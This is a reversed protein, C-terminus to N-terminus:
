KWYIYENRFQTIGSGLTRYERKMSLRKENFRYTFLLQAKKGNDKGDKITEIVTEEGEQRVSIVKQDGIMKGDEKIKIKLQNNMKPEDPYIYEFSYTNEKLKTIKMESPISVKEGSSYDKYTLQGKWNDSILEEFDMEKVSDTQEVTNMEIIEYRMGEVGKSLHAAIKIPQDNLNTLVVYEEKDIGLKTEGKAAFTFGSTKEGEKNRTEVEVPFKSLNKIKVRFSTSEIEGLLFKQFPPITIVSNSAFSILGTVGVLLAIILTRKYM